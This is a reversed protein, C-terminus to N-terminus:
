NFHSGAPAPQPLLYNSHRNQTHTHPPILWLDTHLQAPPTWSHFCERSEPPFWGAGETLTIFHQCSDTTSFDPGARFPPIFASQHQLRREASGLTLHTWRSSPSFHLRMMDRRRQFFSTARSKSLCCCCLHECMCFPPPSKEALPPCSLSCDEVHSADTLDDKKSTGKTKKRKTSIERAPLIQDRLPKKSRNTQVCSSSSRMMQLEHSWSFRRVEGTLPRHDSCSISLRAKASSFCIIQLVEDAEAEQSSIPIRRMHIIPQISGAEGKMGASLYASNAYCLMNWAQSGGVQEWVQLTQLSSGGDSSRGGRSFWQLPKDEEALGLLFIFALKGLIESAATRSIKINKLSSRNKWM